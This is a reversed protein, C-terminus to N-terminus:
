SYGYGHWFRLRSRFPIHKDNISGAFPFYASFNELAVIRRQDETGPLSPSILISNFKRINSKFTFYERKDEQYVQVINRRWISQKIFPNSLDSCDFLFHCSMTVQYKFMLCSKWIEYSNHTAIKQIMFFRVCFQWITQTQLMIHDAKLNVFIRELTPVVSHIM